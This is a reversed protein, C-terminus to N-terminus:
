SADDQERERQQKKKQREIEDPHSLDGVLAAIEHPPGKGQRFRYGPGDTRREFAAYTGSPMRAILVGLQPFDEVEYSQGSRPGIVRSKVVDTRPKTRAMALAGAVAAGIIPWM